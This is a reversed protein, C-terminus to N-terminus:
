RRWTEDGRMLRSWQHALIENVIDAKRSAGGLCDGFHDKALRRLQRVTMGELTEREFRTAM